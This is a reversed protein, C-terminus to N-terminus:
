QDSSTLAVQPAEWYGNSVVFLYLLPLELGPYKTVQIQLSFGTSRLFSTQCHWPELNFCTWGGLILWTAHQFIWWRYIFIKAKKAEMWLPFDGNTSSKELQLGRNLNPIKKLWQQAFRLTSYIMEPTDVCVPCSATAQLFRCLYYWIIGYLVTLGMSTNMTKQHSFGIKYNQLKLVSGGKLKLCTRKTKCWLM